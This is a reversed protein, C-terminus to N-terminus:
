PKGRVVDAVNLLRSSILLKANRAAELDVELRVKGDKKTFNIIGGQEAFQATEGVTLVPLSKLRALIEPLRKKESASIFLIQCKRWDDDSAIPLIIIKRGGVMKGAVAKNLDDGFSDEGLVAITVPSDPQAFTEAPWEVYKTFNLLFLAKVQYETFSSAEGRAQPMFGMTLALLVLLRMLAGARIQESIRAQMRTATVKM